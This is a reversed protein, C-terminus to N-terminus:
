DKWLRVSDLLELYPLFNDIYEFILKSNKFFYHKKGKDEVIGSLFSMIFYECCSIFQLPKTVHYDRSQKWLSFNNPSCLSQLLLFKLSIDVQLKGLPCM